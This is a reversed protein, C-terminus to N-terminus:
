QVGNGVHKFFMAFVVRRNNQFIGGIGGLSLKGRTARHVNFKIESFSPGSNFNLSIDNLATDLISAEWNHLISRASISDFEDRSSAWRIICVFAIESVDEKSASSRM